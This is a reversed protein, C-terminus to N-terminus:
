MRILTNQTQRRYRFEKPLWEFLEPYSKALAVVTEGSKNMEKPDLLGLSHLWQLVEVQGNWAARHALNGGNMTREKVDLLDLSHLWKLVELYGESAAFHPATWGLEDKTKVDLLGESHLWKLVELRNDMTAYHTVTMGIYDSEYPEMSKLSYLWKLVELHGASAAVHAADNSWKGSWDKKACHQVLWAEAEEASLLSTNKTDRSSQTEQHALLAVEVEVSDNADIRDGITLDGTNFVFGALNM